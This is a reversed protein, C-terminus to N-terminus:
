DDDQSLDIEEIQMDNNSYSSDNRTNKSPQMVPTADVINMQTPSTFKGTGMNKNNFRRRKATPPREESSEFDRENYM